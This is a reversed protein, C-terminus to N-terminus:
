RGVQGEAYGRAARLAASNPDIALGANAARIMDNMRGHIFM